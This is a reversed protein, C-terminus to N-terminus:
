VFFILIIVVIGIAIIATVLCGVVRATLRLLFRAIVFAVLVLVALGLFSLIVDM